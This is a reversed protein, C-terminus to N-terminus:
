PVTIHDLGNPPTPKIPLPALGAGDRVPTFTLTDLNPPKPQVHIPNAPGDEAEAGGHQQCRDHGARL